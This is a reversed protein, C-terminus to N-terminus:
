VEEPGFGLDIAKQARMNHVFVDVTEILRWLAAKGINTKRNIIISRKNRNVGLFLAGMGANRKPGIYRTVDGGPAEIKIVDAGFDSLIQATYPGFITLTLDLVRIGSLPFTTM